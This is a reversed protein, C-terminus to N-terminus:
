VVREDIARCLDTIDVDHLTGQSIERSNCRQDVRQRGRPVPALRRVETPVIHVLIVASGYAAGLVVVFALGGNIPRKRSLYEADLRISDRGSNPPKGMVTCDVNFGVEM